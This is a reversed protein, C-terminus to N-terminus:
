AKRLQNVLLIIGLVGATYILLVINLIGGQVLTVLLAGVFTAKGELDAAGGPHQILSPVVSQVIGVSFLGCMLDLGGGIPFIVTALVRTTYGIKLALSVQRNRRWPQLQTLQDVLTYGVIFILIGLCMALIQSDAITGLGWLFSPTASLICVFSWIGVSLPWGRTPKPPLHGADVAPRSEAAASPPAFPNSIDNM